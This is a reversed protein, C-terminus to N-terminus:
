KTGKVYNVRQLGLSSAAARGQLKDKWGAMLAERWAIIFCFFAAFGSGQAPPFPLFPASSRHANIYNVCRLGLTSPPQRAGYNM